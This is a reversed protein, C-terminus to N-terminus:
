RAPDLAISYKQVLRGGPWAFDVLLEVLPENIPGVTSVKLFATGNERKTPVLRINRVLGSYAIGREKYLEPSAVRVNLSEFEKPGLTTIEIEGNVPQGLASHIVIPGLGAAHIPSSLALLACLLTGILIGPLSARASM